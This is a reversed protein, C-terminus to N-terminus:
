RCRVALGTRKVFGPKGFFVHKWGLPWLGTFLVHIKSFRRRDRAAHVGTCGFTFAAMICSWIFLHVSLNQVCKSQLCINLKPISQYISEYKMICMLSVLIYKTWSLWDAKQGSTCLNALYNTHMDKTNARWWTSITLSSHDQLTVPGVHHFMHRGQNLCDNGLNNLTYNIARLNKWCHTAAPNASCIPM